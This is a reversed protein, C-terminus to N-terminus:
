VERIFIRMARDVTLEHIMFCYNSWMWLWIRADAVGERWNTLLVRCLMVLFTVYSGYWGRGAVGHLTCLVIDEFGVGSSATLIYLEEEGYGRVLANM